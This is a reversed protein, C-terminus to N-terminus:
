GERAVGEARAKAGPLAAKIEKMAEARIRRAADRLARNFVTHDEVLAAERLADAEQTLGDIAKAVAHGAAEIVPRLEAVQVLNGLREELDLRSIEAQYAMRKAQERTYASGASGGGEGDEVDDGRRTAAAQERALDGVQGVVRDFQAINVLKTKGPGPRTSILGQEELRSVRQSVAARSIGKAEAVESLAMWLGHDDSQGAEVDSM